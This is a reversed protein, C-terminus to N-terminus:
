RYSPPIPRASDLSDETLEPSSVNSPGAHPRRIVRWAASPPAGAVSMKWASDFGMRATPTGESLPALLVTSSSEQSVSLALSSSSQWQLAREFEGSSTRAAASSPMFTALANGDRDVVDPDDDPIDDEGPVGVPTRLVSTMGVGDVMLTKVVSTVAAFGDDLVHPGSSSSVARVAVDEEALM